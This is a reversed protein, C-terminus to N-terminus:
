IYTGCRKKTKTKQKNTETEGQLPVHFNKPWPNFGLWLQLRAAAAAIGSGKVWQEPSPILSTGGCLCTLDNVWKAVAPVGADEKDM